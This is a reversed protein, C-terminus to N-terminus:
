YQEYLLRITESPQIGLEQLLLTCYHEYHERFSQRDGMQGFIRLLLLMSEEEYENRLVLKRAIHAAERYRGVALLWGALRKAHADYLMALREREVAAWAYSKDEFLEGAYQQELAVAAAENAADIDSLANVGQEFQIFDVDAQEIDVRYQEQASVVIDKFGHMALAKRLQYVATHLYTEANKLPMHPFLDELLRAKGAGRGKHVLLYAFLELSKKSIWNVAGSQKSSAEFCGLGQVTLRDPTKNGAAHPLTGRRSAAKAITRALRSSSIPKVMYDLPYVDYAHIAYESHSTTFVIDLEARLALLERALELGDDTAIQIDLFALHVDNERVFHVAEAASRFSGALEVGEIHSLLRKMALLMAPEDDVILVKM